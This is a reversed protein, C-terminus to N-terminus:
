NGQKIYELWSLYEDKKDLEIAKESYKLSLEQSFPPTLIIFLYYSILYNLYALKKKDKEISLKYELYFLLNFEGTPTSNSMSLDTEKIITIDLNELEKKINESYLNAKNTLINEIFKSM